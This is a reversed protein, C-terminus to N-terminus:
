KILKFYYIMARLLLLFILIPIISNEGTQPIKINAVTDDKELEKSNTDKATEEIATNINSTNENKINPEETGINNNLINSNTDKPPNELKVAETIIDTTDGIKTGIIIADIRNVGSEKITINTNAQCDAWEKENIRYQYKSAYQKENETDSIQFTINNQTWNEKTLIIKPNKLYTIRFNREEVESKSNTSDIAWVKLVHTFEASLNLKTLDLNFNKAQGQTTIPPLTYEIDDISYHITVTDKLDKDNVIGNIIANSYYLKTDNKLQIEINPANLGGVKMVVSYNKTEGAKIERNVWSFTLASDRNEIKTTGPNNNFINMLYYDDWNGIWINDVNTVGKTNKGYLVFQVKNKTKGRRTLLRVEEGDKLKELTAKDDGDIEIDASTGLSITADKLTTNKLTYIIQIQEGDNLYKTKVTLDIGDINQTTDNQVEKYHMEKMEEKEKTYKGNMEGHKGNVNLFVHYGLNHHTTSILEKTNDDKTIYGSIDFGKLWKAEFNNTTVPTVKIKGNDQRTIGFTSIPIILILIFILITIKKLKM